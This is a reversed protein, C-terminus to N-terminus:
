ITVIDVPVTMAVPETLLSGDLRKALLEAAKEGLIEGPQLATAVNFPGYEEPAKNGFTAVEIALEYDPAGNKIVAIRAREANISMLDFTLREAVDTNICFLATPKYKEIKDKLLSTMEQNGKMGRAPRLKRYVDLWIWDDNLPINAETLARRYGALRNRISSTDIERHVMAAICTHGQEILYKTLEYGAKEEDFVVFDTNIEKYYRDVMVFPINHEKLKQYLALDQNDPRPYVVLGDVATTVMKFLTNVDVRSGQDLGIVHLHFHNRAAVRAVGLQVDYHYPHLVGGPLFGISGPLITTEESIPERVFTGRGQQREVIMEKELLDMAKVITIRSVGYDHVLTREPPLADGPQFEGNDIREKFSSYVQYYLPLPNDKNVQFKSM